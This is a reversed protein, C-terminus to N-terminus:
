AANFAHGYYVDDILDTTCFVPQVGYEQVLSDDRTCVQSRLADLEQELQQAHQQHLQAATTATSLQKQLGHQSKAAATVPNCTLIASCLCLTCATNSLRCATNRHLM